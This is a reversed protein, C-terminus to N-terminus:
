PSRKVFPIAGPIHPRQDACVELVHIEYGADSMDALPLEIYSTPGSGVPQPGFGEWSRYLMRYEQEQEYDEGPLYFSCLRSIGALIFDREFEDRVRSSLEALLPVPRGRLPEYRIRRFNPNSAIIRMRIRVGGGVAFTRWFYEQESSDLTTRTFSAYFTNPMILHRYMPEGSADLALYGTLNHSECFTRVEGDHYRKGINTLRFLGSNLISEAADVSTFHFVEETQISPWLHEVIGHSLRPEDKVLDSVTRDTITVDDITIRQSVSHKALIENIAAVVDSYSFAKNPM